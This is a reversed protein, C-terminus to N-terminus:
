LTLNGLNLTEHDIQGAIFSFQISFHSLFMMTEHFSLGRLLHLSFSLCRFIFFIIFGGTLGYMIHKAQRVLGVSLFSSATDM